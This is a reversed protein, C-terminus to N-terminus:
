ESRDAESSGREGLHRRRPGRKTDSDDAQNMAVNMSEETLVLVANLDFNDANHLGVRFKASGSSGSVTELRRL